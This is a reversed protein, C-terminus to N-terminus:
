LRWGKRYKLKGKVKEVLMWFRKGLLGLSFWLCRGGGFRREFLVLAEIVGKVNLKLKMEKGFEDGYDFIEFEVCGLSRCEIVELM